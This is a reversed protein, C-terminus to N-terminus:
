THANRYVFSVNSDILSLMTDAASQAQPKCMFKQMVTIASAKPSVGVNLPVINLTEPKPNYKPYM